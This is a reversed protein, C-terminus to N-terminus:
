DKSSNTERRKEKNQNAKKGRERREEEDERDGKGIHLFYVASLAHNLHIVM